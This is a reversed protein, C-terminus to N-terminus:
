DNQVVVPLYVNYNDGVAIAFGETGVDVVQEVIGEEEVAANAGKCTSSQVFTKTKTM